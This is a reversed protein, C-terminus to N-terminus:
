TGTAVWGIIDFNPRVNDRPIDPTGMRDFVSDEIAADNVPQVRLGDCVPVHGQPIRSPCGNSAPREVCGHAASCPQRTRGPGSMASTRPEAAVGQARTVAMSRSIPSRSRRLQPACPQQALRLRAPRQLSVGGADRAHSGDARTLSRRARASLAGCRVSGLRSSRSNSCTTGSRFRYRRTASPIMSRRSSRSRDFHHKHKPRSSFSLCIM